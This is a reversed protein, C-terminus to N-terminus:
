ALQRRVDGIARALQKKGAREAMDALFDLQELISGKERPSSGRDIACRYGAVVEAIAAENLQDQELAVALKCDPEVVSNWFSPDTQQRIAADSVAQDCWGPIKSRYVHAKRKSDFWDLMAEASVWNTLPYPDLRTQSALAFAQLYNDAMNTLANIVQAPETQMWAQRKYASGLLSFRETTGAMRVLAALDRIAEELDTNATTVRAAARGRRPRAKAHDREALWYQLARKVRLNARQELARVPMEAPEAAIAAGLADIAKDLLATERHRGGTDINSM